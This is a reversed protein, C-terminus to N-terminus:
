ITGFSIFRYLIISVERSGQERETDTVYRTSRQYVCDRCGSKPFDDYKMFM